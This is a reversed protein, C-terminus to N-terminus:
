RERFAKQMCIGDRRGKKVENEIGEGEGDFPIMSAAAASLRRRKCCSM